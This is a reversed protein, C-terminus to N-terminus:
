DIEIKCDIAILLLQKNLFMRLESKKRRMREEEGVIKKGGKIRERREREIGGGIRQQKWKQAYYVFQGLPSFNNKNM